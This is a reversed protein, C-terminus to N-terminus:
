PISVPFSVKIKEWRVSVVAGDSHPVIAYRLREQLKESKEPAVDFRAVDDKEDYEDTLHQDWNSNFIITWTDEGPITFIGYKGASLKKGGVVFDTNSEFTTASHAGTVWVENYPVLGGWITRGRVAPAHYTIMMHSKGINAHESKPISKRVTDTAVPTDAPHQHRSDEKEEKRNCSVLVMLAIVLGLTTKMKKKQQGPLIKDLEPRRRIEGIVMLLALRAAETSSREKLLLFCSV